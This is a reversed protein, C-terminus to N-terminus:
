RVADHDACAERLPQRQQATREPSRSRSANGDLLRAVAPMAARDLRNPKLRHWDRDVLASEIQDCQRVAACVCSKNSGRVRIRAAAGEVAGAALCERGPCVAAAHEDDLVVVVGLEAIVTAREPCELAQCWVLDDIHTRHALRECGSEPEPPQDRWGTQDFRERALLVLVVHARAQELLEGEGAEDLAAGKCTVEAADPRDVAVAAVRGDGCQGCVERACAPLSLRGAEM